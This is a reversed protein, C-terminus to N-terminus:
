TFSRAEGILRLLPYGVHIPILDFALPFLKGPRGALTPAFERVVVYLGEGALFIM